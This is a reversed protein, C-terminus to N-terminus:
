MRMLCLTSIMFESKIMTWNWNLLKPCPFVLRHWLIFSSERNQTHTHQHGDKWMLFCLLYCVTPWIEATAHKWRGPPTPLGLQVATVIIRAYGNIFYSQCYHCSSKSSLTNTTKWSSSWLLSELAFPVSHSPLYYSSPYSCFLTPSGHQAWPSICVLCDNWLIGM